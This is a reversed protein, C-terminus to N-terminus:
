ASFDAHSEGWVRYGLIGFSSFGAALPGPGPGVLSHSLDHVKIVMLDELHPHGREVDKSPDELSFDYRGPILVGLYTRWCENPRRPDRVVEQESRFHLPTCQGHQVRLLVIEHGLGRRIGDTGM